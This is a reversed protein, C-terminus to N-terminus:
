PEALPPADYLGATLSAHALVVSAANALNYSRINGTMPITVSRSRWRELWSEPLGSLESGCLIVDGDAYGPQDYRQAGFKSVVWPERDGLWELFAEPTDHVTLRLHEWYDLGARRVAKASLDMELPGILHLHAHMGVCQRALNGTNPPIRPQYLALNLM